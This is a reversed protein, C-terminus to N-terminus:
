VGLAARVKAPDYFYLRGIKVSPIAKDATHKRIWQLSPRSREDWLALLQKADVLKTQTKM